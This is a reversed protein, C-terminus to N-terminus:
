RDDRDRGAIATEAHMKCISDRAPNGSQLGTPTMIGGRAQCADELRRMEANYDTPSTACASAALATVIILSSLIRM